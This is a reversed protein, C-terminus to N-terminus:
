TRGHAPQLGGAADRREPAPGVFALAIGRALYLGGVLGFVLGTAVRSGATNAWLGTAGLVWDVGIPVLAAALVRPAMRGLWASHRALLPFLAAAIALGAYIGTCRHCVGLAHAGVHFSRDPLTHCLFAFAARLLARPGDPVFPPAFVLALVAATLVFAATSGLRVARRDLTPATM